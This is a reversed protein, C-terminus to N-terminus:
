RQAMAELKIKWMRQLWPEIDAAMLQVDRVYAHDLDEDRCIVRKGRTIIARGLLPPADNLIVVDADPGEIRSFTMSLLLRQHFRSNEDPYRRRDLLVGIDLDSEAHARSEAVSGFIYLSVLGEVDDAALMRQVFEAAEDLTV